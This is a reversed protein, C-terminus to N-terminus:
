MRIIASPLAVAPMPVIGSNTQLLCWKERTIAIGMCDQHFILDKCDLRPASVGNGKDCRCAHMDCYPLSSYNIFDGMVAPRPRKKGM